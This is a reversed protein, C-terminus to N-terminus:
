VELEKGILDINCSTLFEKDGDKARTEYLPALEGPGDFERFDYDLSPDFGANWAASWIAALTAAGQSMLKTVPNGRDGGFADWMGKAVEKNKSIKGQDVETLRGSFRKDREAIYTDVIQKPPLTEFAFFMLDLTALGADHGSEISRVPQDQVNGIDAFILDAHADVMTDEFAAHVGAGKPVSMVKLTNPKGDPGLTNKDPRVRVLQQEKEDPFGDHSASIHLPQCADGVYHSVIGAATLFSLADGKKLSNKMVLFSQWVRFPLIGGDKENISLYYYKWAKLDLKADGNGFGCHDLLRKGDPDKKDMDAFHNPGERGRTHGQAGHKWVDDPVDALPVFPAKTLGTMKNAIVRALPFTINDLNQRLFQGLQTGAPVRQIAEFAIGYHGVAGWYRFLADNLDPIYDLDLVRCVTAISSALAFPQGSQKEALVEGGWQIAVPNAPSGDATQLYWMAGSDGTCTSLKEGQLPGILYDTTYEFGGVSKYRFLLGKIEGIM